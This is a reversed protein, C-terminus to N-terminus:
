STLVIPAGAGTDVLSVLSRLHREWGETCQELCDLEGLGVHTFHLTTGGDATGSLAFHITSGVWDTMATCDPVDWTVLSPRDAEAVELQVGSHPGFTVELLGGALGSGTTPAWWATVGGAQTIADFVRDPAAAFDYTRVFDTTAIDPSQNTTTM